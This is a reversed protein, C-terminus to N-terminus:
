SSALPFNIQCISHDQHQKFTIDGRHATIIDYGLALGFNVEPQSSNKEFMTTWASPSIYQTPVSFEIQVTQRTAYSRLFLKGGGAAGIADGLNLMLGLFILHLQNTTAQVPPLEKALDLYLQVRQRSLEKRAIAIAEQILPTIDMFKAAETKPLYIQRMRSVLNVVKASEQLSLQLYTKLDAPSDLEEMALTLAGQIAQMPNNIEHSLSATLRGVTALRESQLVQKHLRERETLLNITQTHLRANGTAIAAMEAATSLLTVDAEEFDAGIKNLLCVAGIVQGDYIMPISIINRPMLNLHDCFSNQTRSDTQPNNVVLARGNETVWNVLGQAINAKIAAQLNIEAGLVAVLRLNKDDTETDDALWLLGIEANALRLLWHLTRNATEELNLGVAIQQSMEYLIRQQQAYDRLEQIMNAGAITSAALVAVSELLLQDQHSFSTQNDKYLAIAGFIKNQHLLPVALFTYRNLHPIYDLQSDFRSDAMADDLCLSEKRSTVWGVLGQDIGRHQSQYNVPQNTIASALNLSQGDKNLLWIASDSANLMPTILELTLSLNTSLDPQGGLMRAVLVLFASETAHTQTEEHLNFFDILAGISQGLRILMWKEPPSFEVPKDYAFQLIGSLVKQRRLPICIYQWSTGESHADKIFNCFIEPSDPTQRKFSEACNIARQYLIDINKALFLPLNYSGMLDVGTAEKNVMLLWSASADLLEALSKLGDNLMQPFPAQQTRHLKNLFTELGRFAYNLHKATRNKIEIPLLPTLLYDDAGAALAAERQALNNIIAILPVYDASRKLLSQRLQSGAEVLTIDAQADIFILSPKVPAPMSRACVGQAKTVTPLSVVAHFGPLAAVIANSVLEDISILLIV